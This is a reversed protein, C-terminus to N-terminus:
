PDPARIDATAPTFRLTAHGHWLLNPNLTLYSGSSRQPISFIPSLPKFILFYLSKVDIM